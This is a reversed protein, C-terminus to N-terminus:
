VRYSKLFNIDLDTKASIFGAQSKLYLWKLANIYAEKDNSNLSLTQWYKHIAFYPQNIIWIEGIEIQDLYRSLYYFDGNKIAVMAKKNKIM